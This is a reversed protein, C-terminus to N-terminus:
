FINEGCLTWDIGATRLRDAVSGREPDTHGPFRLEVKRVSQQRACEAVSDLWQLPESGNRERLQNIQSFIRRAFDRDEARPPLVSQSAAGLSPTSIAAATRLITRRTM